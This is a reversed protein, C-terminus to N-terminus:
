EVAEAFFRIQRLGSDQLNSRTLGYGANFAPAAQKWVTGIDSKVIIRVCVRVHDTVGMFEGIEEATLEICNERQGGELM